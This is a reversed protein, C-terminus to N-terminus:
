VIGLERLARQRKDIDSKKAFKKPSRQLFEILRRVRKRKNQTRLKNFEICKLERGIDEIATIEARYIGRVQRMRCTVGNERAGSCYDDPPAREVQTIHYIARLRKGAVALTGETEFWNRRECSDMPEPM